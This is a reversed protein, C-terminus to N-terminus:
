TVDRTLRCRVDLATVDGAAGHCLGDCREGIKSAM